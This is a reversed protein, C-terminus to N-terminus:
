GLQSFVNIERLNQRRDGPILESRTIAEWGFYVLGSTPVTVNQKDILARDVISMIRETDTVPDMGTVSHLDIRTRLEFVHDRGAFREIASHVVIYPCALDPLNNEMGRVVTFSPYGSAALVGGLYTALTNDVLADIM